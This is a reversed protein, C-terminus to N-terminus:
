KKLLFGAQVWDALDLISRSGADTVALSIRRSGAPIEVDFRWPERALRMVPSEAALKGDIFIRFQVSCHISLYRAWDHQRYPDDDVGALAVFRQYEPKLEYLVHAPARMGVGRAHTTGRIRLPGRNFAENTRPEWTLEPKGPPGPKIQDLYVDPAPPMPPLRDFEADSVLSVLRGQRFAAARIRASGTLKLPATYLLSGAAPQSGELTYRIEGGAVTPATLSVTASDTFFYPYLESGWPAFRVMDVPAEGQWAGARKMEEAMNISPIGAREIDDIVGATGTDPTFDTGPDYYTLADTLDRALMCQFGAGAMRKIGEPRNVVCANTHVGMYILHTIGLLKCNSYLEDTGFTFLDDAGIHLGPQMGDWGFERPCALGPGCMCQRSEVRVPCSVIRLSPAPILPVALVRERQPTGSYQSVVDTPAWFVKLGLRRAASLALNMRPVLVGVRHAATLCHHYNWMDVAVIATHRPDLRQSEIVPQGTQRDRKQLRLELAPEAAAGAASFCFLSLAIAIAAHKAPCTLILLRNPGIM